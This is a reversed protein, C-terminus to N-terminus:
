PPARRAGELRPIAGRRRRSRKSAPAAVVKTVVFADGKKRVALGRVTHGGIVIGIGANAM